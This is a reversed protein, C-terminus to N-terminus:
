KPLGCPISGDARRMGGFWYDSPTGTPLTKPCEPTFFPEPTYEAASQRDLQNLMFTKPVLMSYDVRADSSDIEVRYTVRGPHLPYVDLLAKYVEGPALRIVNRLFFREKSYAKRVTATQHNRPLFAEYTPDHDDGQSEVYALTGTFPPAEGVVRVRIDTILLERESRNALLLNLTQHTQIGGRRLFYVLGAGPKPRAVPAPLAVSFLLHTNVDVRVRLAAPGNKSPNSDADSTAAQAASPVRPAVNRVQVSPVTDKRALLGMLLAGVMAAVGLIILSPAQQNRPTVRFAGECVCAGGLAGLAVATLLGLGDFGQSLSPLLQALLAAVAGVTGALAALPARFRFVRIRDALRRVCSKMSTLKIPAWPEFPAPLRKPDILM